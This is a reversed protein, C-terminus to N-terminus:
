KYIKSDVSAQSYSVPSTLWKAGSPCHLNELPITPPMALAKHALTNALAALSYFTNPALHLLFKIRAWFPGSLLEIELKENKLLLIAHMKSLEVM